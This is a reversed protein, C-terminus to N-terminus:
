LSTMSSGVLDTHEFEQSVRCGAGRGCDVRKGVRSLISFELPGRVMV